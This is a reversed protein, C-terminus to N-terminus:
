LGSTAPEFGAGAVPLVGSNPPEQMEHGGDSRRPSAALRSRLTFSAAAWKKHEEPDHKVRQSRNTHSLNHVRSRNSHSPPEPEQTVGAPQVARSRPAAVLTDDLRAPPDGMM